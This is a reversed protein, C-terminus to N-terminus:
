ALLVVMVGGAVAAPVITGGVPTDGPCCAPACCCASCCWRSGPLGLLHARPLRGDPLGLPAAAHRGQAAGLLHARHRGRRRRLLDAHRGARGHHDPVLGRADLRRRVESTTSAASSAASCRWTPARLRRRQVRHGGRGLVLDADDIREIAEDLGVLKPFVLYIAVVASRRVRRALQALKRRDPCSPRCAATRRSTTTTTTRSARELRADPGLPPTGHARSASTGRRTM